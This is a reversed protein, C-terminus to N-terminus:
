CRTFRHYNNISENGIICEDASWFLKQQGLSAECCGRQRRLENGMWRGIQKDGVFFVISSAEDINVSEGLQEISISDNMEIQYQISYQQFNNALRWHKLTLTIM